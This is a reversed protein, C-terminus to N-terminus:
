AEHLLTDYVDLLQRTVAPWAFERQVRALSAAGFAPLPAGPALAEQLAAALARADGPPVLWGNVGPQVKDPIGGARTAVVARGHAMAELTVLSSGEYLTPHVFVTATEYWAHLRRDDLRGAMIIRSDLGASGIAAALTGRAPGEGVLVWRWSAASSGARGRPPSFNRLAEIMVDFGKNRELRGVSLLVPVDDPVGADRRVAAAAHPDAAARCAELDVANPVVAIRGRAVPLHREVTRVLAHDTAIVRDAGRACARVAWRLPAYALTKLRARSPDTAGFEELGQPNLVLPATAGRRRAHAYGLASAGLGHVLDIRGEAVLRAALRGARWGFLPYATDRDLITTGPRNAFPFTRYPVHCVASALRPEDPRTGADPRRDRRRTPPRTILTVDVGAQGLHRVLDFVHRELGGYGHLPHVSRALVAVRIPRV